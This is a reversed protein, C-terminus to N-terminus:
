GLRRLWISAFLCGPFLLEVARKRNMIKPLFAELNERRLFDHVLWECQPNTNIVVWKERDIFSQEGTGKSAARLVRVHERSERLGIRAQWGLASIRSVDLLKRPM